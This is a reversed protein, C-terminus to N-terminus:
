TLQGVVYTKTHDRIQDSSSRFLGSEVLRAPSSVSCLLGESFNWASAGTPFGLPPRSGEALAWLCETQVGQPGYHVALTATTYLSLTYTHTNEGSGLFLPHRSYASPTCPQLPLSRLWGPSLSRQPHADAAPRPWLSVESGLHTDCSAEPTGWLNKSVLM